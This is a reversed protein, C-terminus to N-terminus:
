TRMHMRCVTADSQASLHESQHDHKEQFVSCAKLLVMPQSTIRKTNGHTDGPMYQHKCLCPIRLVNPVMTLATRHLDKNFRLSEELM